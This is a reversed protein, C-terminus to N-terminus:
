YVEGSKTDFVRAMYGSIINYHNKLTNATTEFCFRNSYFIRGSNEDKIQVVFRKHPIYKLGHKEQEMNPM